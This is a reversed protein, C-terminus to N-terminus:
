PGAESLSFSAGNLEIVGAPPTADDELITVPASFQLGLSAGGTVNSLQLTFQEDGEWTTDDVPTVMITQTLVGDLFTLTGNVPDFDAPSTATGNVGTYDVTVTGFSGGSRNVTIELAPGAESLSFSAGNLEIVGAPPTADDELITVPASSQVGLSAGGTVNSLQLTFQEDGEWITDDVPTVMITQTLVGDGFTL